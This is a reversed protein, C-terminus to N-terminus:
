TKYDDEGMVDLVLEFLIQDKAIWARGDWLPVSVSADDDENGAAAPKDVSPAPPPPLDRFAEFAADSLEAAFARGAPEASRFAAEGLRAGLALVARSFAGLLTLADGEVADKARVSVARRATSIFEAAAAEDRVVAVRVADLAVAAAAAAIALSRASLANAPGRAADLAGLSRARALDALEFALARSMSRLWTVLRAVGGNAVLVEVFGQAHSRSALLPIVAAIADRFPGSPAEATAELAQQLVTTAGGGVKEAAPGVRDRQAGLAGGGWCERPDALILPLADRLEQSRARPDQVLWPTTASAATVALPAVLRARLLADCGTRAVCGACACTAARAAARLPLDSHWADAALTLLVAATEDLAARLNLPADAASPPANLPDSPPASESSFIISIGDTATAARSLERFAFSASLLLAAPADHAAHLDAATTVKASRRAPIDRSPARESPPISASAAAADTASTGGYEASGEVSNAANAANAPPSPFHSRALRKRLEDIDRGSVGGAGPSAILADDLADVAARADAGILRAFLVLASVGKPAGGRVGRADCLGKAGWARAAFGLCLLASCRARLRPSWSLFGDGVEFDDVDPMALVCVLVDVLTGSWAPVPARLSGCLAASLRLWSSVADFLAAGAVSSSRRNSPLPSSHHFLAGLKQALAAWPTDLSGDLVARRCSEAAQLGTASWSQARDLAVCLVHLTREHFGDADEDGLSGCAAAAAGALEDLPVDRLDVGANIMASVASWGGARASPSAGQARTIACFLRASGRLARASDGDAAIAGALTAFVGVRESGVGDAIVTALLTDRIWAPSFFRLVLARLTRSAGGVGALLHPARSLFCAARARNTSSPPLSLLDVLAAISESMAPTTISPTSRASSIPLELKFFRIEVELSM